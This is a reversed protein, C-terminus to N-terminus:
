LARHYRARQRAGGCRRTPLASTCCRTARACGFCGTSTTRSRGCGKWRKRRPVSDRRSPRDSFSPTEAGDIRHLAELALTVARSDGEPQQVVARVSPVASGQMVLDSLPGETEDLLTISSDLVRVPQGLLAEPSENLLRAASPSVQQIHGDARIVIIAEGESTAM